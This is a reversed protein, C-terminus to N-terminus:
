HELEKEFARDAGFNQTWYNSALGSGMERHSAMLLNRHHGSSQCWGDHAAKPDGGVMACNESVGSNYGALRARDSPTRREPDKEFHGFDGTNAMYDSHMQAAAQIRPNWALSRRGLLARYRNTIRVQEREASDPTSPNSNPAKDRDLQAWARENRAEVARSRALERQEDLTWAFQALDVSEAGRPLALVWAPVSDPLVFPARVTEFTERCWELEDLAAVFDKPLKVPRSREWVQRVAGVAENVARQARAYDAATNPPEPPNYPYFYVKEDFILELARRRAADLEERLSAVARLSELARHKAIRTVAAVARASLAARVTDPSAGATLADLARARELADARLFRRELDADVAAAEDRAISEVSSWKGQALLVRQTAGLGGRSRSVMGAAVGSDIAGREVMRALEQAASEREAGGAALAEAIAGRRALASISEVNAVVRQLREFGLANWGLQQGDVDWGSAEIATVGWKALKAGHAPWADLLERRLTLRARLDQAFEVCDDRLDGAFLKGSAALLCRRAYALEGAEACTRALDILAQADLDPPEPADEWAAGPGASAGAVALEAGADDALEFPTFPTEDPAVYSRAREDLDALLGSLREFSKSPPFRESHRALWAHAERASVEREIQHAQAVLQDAEAQQGERLAARLDSLNGVREVPQDVLMVLLEDARQWEKAALASRVEARMRAGLGEDIATARAAKPADGQKRRQAEAQTFRETLESLALELRGRSRADKERGRREKLQERIQNQTLEGSRAFLEDIERAVRDERARLKDIEVLLERAQPSDLATLQRQAFDLDGAAISARARDLTDREGSCGTFLLTFLLGLAAVPAAPLVAASAAPRLFRLCRDFM